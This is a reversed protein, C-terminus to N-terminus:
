RHPRRRAGDARVLHIQQLPERLRARGGASAAHDQGAGARVRGRGLRPGAPQALEDPTDHMLPTAVLDRVPKPFALPAMESVKKALLKFIEWDTKSEWVPPVAAGLNHIFSHLDTSNLDNKEYWFASPLVIDSYLASTDMRFNIDVVLDYKGRPATERYKVTHTKGKAREDAIANDHTGLYHRLFFEAGKASSQIANGRWIFWLRPWNEEADPDEIAFSLKKNKLQEVVRGIIESETKAGAREAEAVIDLPNRNFHPATPMWGLRMAKAELDIAHGKAWRPKPSTLGYETFEREYRWQCSNGYHWTPSQVLRPPKTWDRAFAITGWPGLPALKEQGVYHNMGGGNVGCCGCLILATIASRYILNNYYWHNASAGVIVMSKGHTLEANRAFERAFRIATDRGIGTHREQWAPTFMADADDYSSAYAGELGRGVGCQAMLLDFATTVVVEGDTPPSAGCRCAACSSPRQVTRRERPSITSSWRSWLM